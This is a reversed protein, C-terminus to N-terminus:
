AIIIVTYIWDLIKAFSSSSIFGLSYEVKFNEHTFLKTFFDSHSALLCKNIEFTCGDETTIKADYHRDQPIKYADVTYKCARWM